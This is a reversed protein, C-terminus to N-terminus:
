CFLLGEVYVLFGLHAHIVALNLYKTFTSTTAGIHM